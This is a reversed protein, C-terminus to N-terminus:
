LPEEFHREDHRQKLNRASGLDLGVLQGSSLHVALCWIIHAAVTTKGSRNLGIVAITKGGRLNGATVPILWSSAAAERADCPPCHGDARSTPGERGDDSLHQGVPTPCDRADMGQHNAKM